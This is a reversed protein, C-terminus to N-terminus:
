HQSSTSQLQQPSPHRYLGVDRGRLSWYKEFRAGLKEAVRLSGKNDPDILSIATPWGRSGYAFDRTARAAETAYGRGHFEELLGWGLEPEPWGEPCYPGCWGIFRGTSKEEVAFMGYGRLRWHGLHMAMLKWTEDRTKVGGVYRATAENAWFLALPELDTERWERLRTRETEIVPIM